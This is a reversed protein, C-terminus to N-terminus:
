LAELKVQNNHRYLLWASGGLILCGAATAPIRLAEPLVLVLGSLILGPLMGGFGGLAASASQKVVQEEKEWDFSHLKLNVTLGFVAAFVLQAAPTLVTLALAAPEPRVTIVLLIEMLVYCPASLSFNLLLKSDLWSKTDVPLSRIVWFQKGEMSIATCTTSMMSMIAGLAIPLLLRIDLPLAAQLSEWGGFCVAGAVLVGMLPGIITNIVYISSSFYRRLERLYLAKQLSQSSQRTLRYDHRASVSRLRNVIPHFFRGTVALMGLVMAMSVVCFLALGWLNGGVMASGLWLSPPYIKGLAQAATQALAALMRPTIDAEVATLRMSGVLVGLVFILSLLIQVLSKHRFGSSLGLILTGFGTAIVLPIAPLLLWGVLASLYFVAGPHRMWAFVATGPLMVVLSLLLDGAYMAFFRSFVLRKTNVPMACLLDYGKPSFLRQGAGFLGFGLILLSALTVLYGPVAEALGLSCLGYVLAGVYFIAMGALLIWCGCLLRWSSKVKPDTTHRYKNYGALSRFELATLALLENM